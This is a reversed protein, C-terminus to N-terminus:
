TEADGEEGPTHASRPVAASSLLQLPCFSCLCQATLNMVLDGPGSVAMGGDSKSPRGRSRGLPPESSVLQQATLHERSLGVRSGIGCCCRLSCPLADKGTSGQSPGAARQPVLDARGAAM